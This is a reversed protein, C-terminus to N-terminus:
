IWVTVLARERLHELPAIASGQHAVPACPKCRYSLVEYDRAFSEVRVLAMESECGPCQPYGNRMAPNCWLERM